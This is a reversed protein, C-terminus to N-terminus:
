FTAYCVIVSVDEELDFAVLFITHDLVPKITGLKKALQLLAVTGSGNDDIGTTGKVTDYHGGVLIIKDGPLHRNKSPWIGIINIGSRSTHNRDHAKFKQGYTELGYKKFTQKIDDRAENRSEENSYHREKNIMQFFPMLFNDDGAHHETKMSAMQQSDQQDDSADLLLKQVSYLNSEVIPDHDEYFSRLTENIARDSYKDM